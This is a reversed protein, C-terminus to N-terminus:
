GRVTVETAIRHEGIMRAYPDCHIVAHDRGDFEIRDKTTLRIPVGSPWHTSSIILKIDGQQISSGSVLDRETLSVSVARSPHSEFATGRNIKITVVRGRASDLKDHQRQYATSDFLM